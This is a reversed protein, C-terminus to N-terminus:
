RPEAKGEAWREVDQAIERAFSQLEAARTEWPQSGSLGNM